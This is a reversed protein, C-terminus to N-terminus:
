EDLATIVIEGLTPHSHITRTISDFTLQNAMCLVVENIIDSAHPGCIHVGLILSTNNDILVKILGETRGMCVAKGNSRFFAKKVKYDLGKEVCIDETLGAMACEPISFVASPIIDLNIDIGLVKKGQATAAHALMCKGNVDGIAYISSVSTRFEEDVIIGKSTYDIGTEKLGEPFLPSRGTASIIVGAKIKEEKNKRSFTITGNSDISRVEASNIFKIGQRSMFTRLRKAIDKDFNPLIEKCYEIVTLEIDPRLNHIITAFEIGIVGGGIIAISEIPANWENTWNLFEDSTITHEIGPINLVSPRSGTAIIIKDATYNNGDVEVTHQDILRACGKIKRIDKLSLEAGEKLQNVVANKYNVIENLNLVPSPVKLCNMSDRIEFSLDAWKLLAKTPICGKNLCTGGVNEKEILIVNHGQKAAEIATDMGGPGAGIIILDM